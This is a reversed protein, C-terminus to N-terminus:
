GAPEWNRPEQSDDEYQRDVQSRAPRSATGPATQTPEGEHWRALEEAAKGVLTPLDNQVFSWVEAAPPASGDHQLAANLIHLGPAALRHAHEPSEKDIRHLADAMISIMQAILARLLEHEEYDAATRGVSFELVKQGAGHLEWLDDGLALQAAAHKGEFGMREPNTDEM